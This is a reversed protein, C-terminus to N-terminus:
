NGLTSMDIVFRYKVDNKLMRDYAQNIDKMAIVEVDAVINNKSCFELMEATEPIGGILSGAYARRKFILDFVNVPQPEGPAGVQVLTGDCKLLNFYPNLDLVAAITNLLLDFTGAHAAMQEKSTSLIVQSAGLRKGDTVKNPSTTFLVVEAGMAKAIKLGMHGLGGLGMVGVKMGPGVKWHKLPSYTTIGACLLPAVSKPDLNEPVKLVFEHNVVITASYGGMTHGGSVKDPANYTGVFSPCYQELGNKCSDCERCSNVMCGVAVLDGVKFNTVESGIRTVKGVIEHGPVCPYKTGGWENKATHLDSHCVGCYMIKLEVDDKLPERRKITTKALTSNSDPTSFALTDM